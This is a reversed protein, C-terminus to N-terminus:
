RRGGALWAQITQYAANLEAPLEQHALMIETFALNPDPLNQLWALRLWFGPIVTAQYLGDATLPAEQFTQDAGLVYFDAQQQHPRPDILWYERVGAQEYETFKRVRDETVSGPSIIEIVLDPGGEFRAPTLKDLSENAIFLIDPERAPGGPWLKVEFPAYRMIGRKFFRIFLNLLTGLFQSVDQHKDLPPMHVIVEGEAWETIQSDSAFALYSEYSMPRRQTAEQVRNGPALTTVM